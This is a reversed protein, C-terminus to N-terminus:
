GGSVANGIASRRCADQESPSESGQEKRAKTLERAWSVIRARDYGFREAIAARSDRVEQVITDNM